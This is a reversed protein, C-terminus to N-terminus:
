FWETFLCQRQGKDKKGASVEYGKNLSNPLTEFLVAQRIEEVAEEKEILTWALTFPFTIM